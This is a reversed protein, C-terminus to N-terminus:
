LSMGGKLMKEIKLQNKNKDDKIYLAVAQNNDMFLVEESNYDNM